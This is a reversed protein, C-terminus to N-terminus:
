IPSTFHVGLFDKGLQLVISAQGFAVKGNSVPPPGSLPGRPSEPFQDGAQAFRIRLQPCPNSDQPGKGICLANIAGIALQRNPGVQLRPLAYASDVALGM